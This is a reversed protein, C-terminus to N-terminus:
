STSGSAACCGACSGPRRGCASGARPSPARAEGTGRRSRRPRGGTRGRSVRETSRGARSPRRPCSATRCRARRRRRRSCAPQRVRDSGPRHDGPGRPRGACSRRRARLARLGVRRRDQVDRRHAEPREPRGRDPGHVRARLHAVEGVVGALALMEGSGGRSRRRGSRASRCRSSRSGCRRRRSRGRRRESSRAASGVLDLHDLDLEGLAGLGAVAADQGAALTVLSIASVRRTGSPLSTKEGSRGCPTRSGGPSSAREDRLQALERAALRDAELDADAVRLLEHRDDLRHELGPDVGVEDDDVAALAAGPRRRQLEGVRHARRQDLAQQHHLVREDAGPMRSSIRIPALPLSTVAAPM